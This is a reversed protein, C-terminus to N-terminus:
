KCCMSKGEAAYIDELEKWFEGIDFYRSIPDAYQREM